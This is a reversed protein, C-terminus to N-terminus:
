DSIGSVLEKARALTMDEAIAVVVTSADNVDCEMIIDQVSEEIEDTNFDQPVDVISLVAFKMIQKGKPQPVLFARSNGGAGVQSMM